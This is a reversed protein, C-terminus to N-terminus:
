FVDVRRVGLDDVRGVPDHQGAEDVGVAVGQCVAKRPTPASQVNM